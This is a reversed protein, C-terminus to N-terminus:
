SKRQSKRLNQLRSEFDSDEEEKICPIPNEAAGNSSSAPQNANKKSAEQLQFVNGSKKKILKQQGDETLQQQDDDLSADSQQYVGSRSLQLDSNARHLNEEQYEALLEEDEAEDYQIEFQAEQGHGRFRVVNIRPMNLFFEFDSKLGMIEDLEELDIEYDPEEENEEPDENSRSYSRQVMERFNQIENVYGVIILDKRLQRLKQSVEVFRKKNGKERRQRRRYKKNRKQDEQRNYAALILNKPKQYHAYPCSFQDHNFNKCFSCKKGLFSNYLNIKDRLACFREQDDPFARLVRLFDKRDLYILQTTTKAKGNMQYFKNALLNLEGYIEGM